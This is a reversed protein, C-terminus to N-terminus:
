VQGQWVRFDALTPDRLMRRMHVPDAMFDAYSVGTENLYKEIEVAPLSAAFRMESTGFNGIARQEKCWDAHATCDQSRQVYMKGDEIKYRTSVDISRGYNPRILSTEPEPMKNSTDILGM